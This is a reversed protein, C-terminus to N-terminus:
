RYGGSNIYGQKAMAEAPNTPAAESKTPTGNSPVTANQIPEIAAQGGLSKYHKAYESLFKQPDKMFAAVLIQKQVNPILETRGNEKKVEFLSEAWKETNLLIDTVEQPDVPFNFKEAGEGLSIQKTSFIDKTYPSNNIQSKYTEFRQVREQEQLDPEPEKPEPAPPLLFEEQKQIFNNRHRNAEAELLIRGEEVEEAEESNLSFAKTVKHKFLVSLASESIGPNEQRLQHRMVEEAPMTKYDTTLQQLYEKVDGKDKWLNYFALMKPQDQIERALKVTKDDVGLEKLVTDPQSKLVEQWTQVKPPEAAIQPESVKTPEVVPSQSEQTATEPQSTTNATAAPVEESVPNPEEKKESIPIQTEAREGTSNFSGQRAMLQAITPQEAVQAVPEAVGPDFFKNILNM